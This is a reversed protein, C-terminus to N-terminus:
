QHENKGCDRKLGYHKLLHNRLRALMGSDVAVNDCMWRGIQEDWEYAADPHLQIAQCPVVQRLDISEGALQERMVKERMSRRQADAFCSSAIAAVWTGWGGKGADWQSIRDMAREAAAMIIDRAEEAPLGGSAMRIFVKPRVLAITASALENRQEQSALGCQVLAALRNLGDGRATDESSLGVM